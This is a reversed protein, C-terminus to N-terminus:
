EQTRGLRRIDFSHGRLDNRGVVRRTRAFRTDHVKDVQRERRKQGLESGVIPLLERRKLCAKALPMGGGGRERREAGLPLNFIQFPNVARREKGRRPQEREEAHKGQGRVAAIAVADAPLDEPEIIGM